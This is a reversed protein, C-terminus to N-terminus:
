RNIHDTIDDTASGEVNIGLDTASDFLLYELAQTATTQKGHVGRIKPTFVNLPYRGDTVTEGIYFRGVTEAGLVEGGDIEFTWTTKGGNESKNKLRLAQETGGDGIVSRIHGDPMEVYINDQLLPKTLIPRTWRGSGDANMENIFPQNFANTNYSVDVELEYGYGAKIYGDEKMLNVWGDEGLGRQRTLRSRFRVADIKYNESLNARSTTIPNDPTTFRKFHRTLKEDFTSVAVNSGKWKNEHVYQTWTRTNNKNYFPKIIDNKIRGQGVGRNNSLDGGPRVGDEYVNLDANAVVEAKLIKDVNGELNIEIPISINRNLGSRIHQKVFVTKGDLDIAFAVDQGINKIDKPVDYVVDFQVLMEALQDQTNVTDKPVVRVNNVSIDYSSKWEKDYSNDTRDIDYRDLGVIIEGTTNFQGTEFVYPKSDLTYTQNHKPKIRMTGTSVTGTNEDGHLPSGVMYRGVDHDVRVNTYRRADKGNVSEYKFAYRFKYTHGPIPTENERLVRERGGSQVEVLHTDAVSFNGKDAIIKLTNEADHYNSDWFMDFSSTYLNKNLEGRVTYLMDDDPDPVTYNHVFVNDQNRRIPNSGSLYVGSKGKDTIARTGDRMYSHTELVGHQADRFNDGYIRVNTKVTLKDGPEVEPATGTPYASNANKVSITGTSPNRTFTQLLEDGRYVEQEIVRTDHRLNNHFQESEKTLTLTYRVPEGKTNNGLKDSSFSVSIVNDADGPISELSGYMVTLATIADEKDTYGGNVSSAIAKQLNPSDNYLTEMADWKKLYNEEVHKWQADTYKDGVYFMNYLEKNHGNKSLGFWGKHMAWQFADEDVKTHFNTGYNKDRAWPFARFNYKALRNDGDRAVGDVPFRYNFFPEGTALYGLMRYEGWRYVQKGETAKEPNTTSFPRNKQYMDVHRVNEDSALTMNSREWNHTLMPHATYRRFNYQGWVAHEKSNITASTFDWNLGNTKNEDLLTAWYNMNGTEEHRGKGSKAEKQAASGSTHRYTSNQRIDQEIKNHTPYYKGNDVTGIAAYIDKRNQYAGDEKGTWYNKFGNDKYRLIPSYYYMNDKHLNLYLVVVKDPGSQVYMGREVYYAYDPHGPSMELMVPLYAGGATKQQATGLVQTNERFSLTNLIAANGDIFDPIDIETVTEGEELLDDDKNEDDKKGDDKSGDDKSGGSSSSGDPNSKSKLSIYIKQGVQLFRDQSATLGSNSRLTNIAVNYRKSVYSLTNGSRLAYYTGKSDTVLLNQAQVTSNPAVLPAIAGLLTTSYLLRKKIKNMGTNVGETSHTKKIKM